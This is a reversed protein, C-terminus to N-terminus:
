LPRARCFETLAACAACRLLRIFGRSALGSVGSRQTRPETDIRPGKDPVNFFVISRSHRPDFPNVRILVM